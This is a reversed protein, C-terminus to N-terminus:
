FTEILERLREKASQLIPVGDGVRVGAEVKAVRRGCEAEAHAGRCRHKGEARQNRNQANVGRGLTGIVLHLLNTRERLLDAELDGAMLM